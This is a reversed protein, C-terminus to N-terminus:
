VTLLCVQHATQPVGELAACSKEVHHTRQESEEDLAELPPQMEVMASIGVGTRRGCSAEQQHNRRCGHLRRLRGGCCAARPIIVGHGGRQGIRHGPGSAPIRPVVLSAGPRTSRGEHQAPPTIGDNHPGEELLSRASTTGTAVAGVGAGGSEGENEFKGLAARLPGPLQQVEDTLGSVKSELNDVRGQTSTTVDAAEAAVDAGSM